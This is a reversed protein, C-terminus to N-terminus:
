LGLEDAFRALDVTESVQGNDLERLAMGMLVEDPRLLRNASLEAQLIELGGNVYAEFIAVVEGLRDERLIEADDPKELVALTEILLIHSSTRYFQELRIPDGEATAFSVAKGEAKGLAAAFVFLDYMHPFIKESSNSLREILEFKDAPRRVRHDIVAM